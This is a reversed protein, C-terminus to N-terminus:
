QTISVRRCLQFLAAVQCSLQWFTKSTNAIASLKKVTGGYNRVTLCNKPRETHGEFNCIKKPGDFFRKQCLQLKTIVQITSKLLEM